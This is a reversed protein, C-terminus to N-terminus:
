IERFSKDHMEWWHKEVEGVIQFGNKEYFSKARTNLKLVRLVLLANSTRLSNILETGIGKGRAHRSIALARIRTADGDPELEVFGVPRDELLLIQHRMPDFRKRFREEEAGEDFPALALRAIGYLAERRIEHVFDFDSM